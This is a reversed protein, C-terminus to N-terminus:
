SSLKQDESLQEFKREYEQVLNWRQQANAISPGTLIEMTEVHDPAEPKESAGPDESLENCLDAIAGYVSLQNASIVSRLLLEINEDSRSFVEQVRRQKKIRREWPCLLCSIDPSQHRCFNMMMQEATKTGPDTVNTPTPETGIRKQGLDWSHSRTCLECSCTIKECRETNGKEGKCHRQVNVHLHNQRGEMLKQIEELLALTAFGPFIKWEFETPKGDIRNMGKFHNNESYWKFKGRGLQLLIIEGNEGCLACLRLLRQNQRQHDSSSQQVIFSTSMWTLEKFDITSVGTIETQESILKENENFLQGVSNWLHNKVFRLYTDYDQGLHVTAQLTTNLFIGWIAMNVDLDDMPDDHERGYIKGSSRSSQKRMTFQPQVWTYITHGNKEKLKQVERTTQNVPHM